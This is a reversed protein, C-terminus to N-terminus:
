LHKPDYLTISRRPDNNIGTVIPAHFNLQGDLFGGDDVGNNLCYNVANIDRTRLIQGIVRRSM